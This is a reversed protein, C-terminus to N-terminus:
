PIAKTMPEFKAGGVSLMDEVYIEEKLVGEYKKPLESNFFM